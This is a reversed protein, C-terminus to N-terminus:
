IAKAKARPRGAILRLLYLFVLANILLLGAHPWNTHRILEFLEFPLFSGTLLLTFYEAWSKELYLGVAEILGLGAYAFVVASIRRLMKDDLISAKILIFNVLHSEPNFRLISALRTLEDDIDQHLLHLAGVGIAVFLLAQALKFSAILVLWKNHQQNIVSAPSPSDIIAEQPRHRM